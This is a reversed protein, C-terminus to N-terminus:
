SLVQLGPHCSGTSNRHGQGHGLLIPLGMLAPFPHPTHPALLYRDCYTLHM